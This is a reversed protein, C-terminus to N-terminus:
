CGNVRGQSSPQGREDERSETSGMVFAMTELLTLTKLLRAKVSGASLGEILVIKVLVQQVQQQGAIAFAFNLRVRISWSFPLRHVNKLIRSSYSMVHVAQQGIVLTLTLERGMGGRRVSPVCKGGRRFEM